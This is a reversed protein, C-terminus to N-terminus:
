LYPQNEVMANKIGMDRHHTTPRNLFCNKFRAFLAAHSRMSM